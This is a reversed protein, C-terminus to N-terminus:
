LPRRRAAGGERPYEAPTPRVKEVVVVVRRGAGRPLELPHVPGPEGGLIGIARRAEELDEEGRAGRMAVFRGGPRVLPLCWEAAVPMPALARAVAVDFVERYRPDRGAAEARVALVHARLGLREVAQRLFSAKKGVSEMLTVELEPAAVALPIGPFGAGSGVDVLRGRRPLAGVVLPTLSDVFHKVAAEEPDVIATLNHRRNAELVLSWFAALMQRQGDSLAIGAERAAEDLVQDFGM